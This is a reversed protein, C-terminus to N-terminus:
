LKQADWVNLGLGRKKLELKDIKGTGMRPLTDVCEIYRPLSFTPLRQKLWAYLVEPQLTLGAKAVLILRIDDEGMPSPYALIVCEQISEYDLVCHEVDFSSVNEGRRRIRDKKRDVYFYDGQENCRLLDGTHFWLNRWAELTAQPKNLYGQMMIYPKLPRAVLEGVKGIPVAQDQEDVLALQWDEHAKGTSGWQRLPYRNYLLFSTETMAFAELTKVGFRQEFAKDHAANFIARVRHKRDYPGPPQAKILSVIAHVVFGLSAGCEAAKQWYSSASFRVDIVAHAGLVLAPLLCMRSSLGHFLPLPSYLVDDRSMASLRMYTCASSFAQANPIMVGKAPGTSGSTYSIVQIGRHDSFPEISHGESLFLEDLSRLNQFATIGGEPGHGVYYVWPISQRVIESLSALEGLFSEHVIVGDPKADEVLVELQIHKLQTNLPVIQCGLLSAAFWSFVFEVCNPLLLVVRSHPGIGQTLLGRALDHSQKYVQVFSYTEGGITVFPRDGEEVARRHLWYGIHRQEMPLDYLANVAPDNFSM